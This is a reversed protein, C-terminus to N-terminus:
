PSYACPTFSRKVLMRQLSAEAHGSLSLARSLVGGFTPSAHIRRTEVAQFPQQLTQLVM